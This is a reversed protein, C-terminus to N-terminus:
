PRIVKRVMRGDPELVILPVRETSRELGSVVTEVDELSKVAADDISLLITGRAISAYDAASGPQVKRVYVGDVERINLARAIESTFNVLEM